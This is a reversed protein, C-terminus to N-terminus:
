KNPSRWMILKVHRVHLTARHANRSEKKSITAIQKEGEYARFFLLCVIVGVRVTRQHRENKKGGVAISENVLLEYVGGYAILSSV